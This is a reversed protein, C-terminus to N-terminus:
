EEYGSVYYAYKVLESLNYTLIYLKDNIKCVANNYYHGESGYIIFNDINNHIKNFNKKITRKAKLDILPLKSAENNEIFKIIFEKDEDTLQVM